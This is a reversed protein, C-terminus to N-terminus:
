DDEDEDTPLADPRANENVYEEIQNLLEGAKLWMRALRPDSIEDAGMYHQCGYGLGEAEIVDKVQEISMKKM